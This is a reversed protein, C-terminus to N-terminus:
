SKSEIYKIVDSYATSLEQFKKEKKIKTFKDTHSPLRDPHHLMALKHYANKIDTASPLHTTSETSIFGLINLSHVVKHPLLNTKPIQFPKAQKQNEHTSKSRNTFNDRNPSNPKNNFINVKGMHKLRKSIFMNGIAMSLIVIVIGARVVGKNEPTIFGNESM